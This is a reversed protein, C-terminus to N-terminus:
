DDNPPGFDDKFGFAESTPGQTDILTLKHQAEAFDPRHGARIWWLAMHAKSPRKFWEKRRILIETHATKYTFACLSKKDTWVSLNIIFNPDSLAAYTVDSSEDVLRWVFGPTSEALANIRGLNDRFDKIIPDDIPALLTGVNIQALHYM